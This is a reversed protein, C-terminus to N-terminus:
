KMIRSPAQKLFREAQRPLWCRIQITPIRPYERLVAAVSRRDIEATALMGIKTAAVRNPQLTARMQDALLRTAYSPNGPTNM